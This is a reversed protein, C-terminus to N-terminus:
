WKLFKLGWGSNNEGIEGGGEFKDVLEWEKNTVGKFDGFAKKYKDLAEKKTDGYYSYSSGNKFRVTLNWEKNKEMIEGGTKFKDEKNMDARNLRNEYYVSGDASVRKGLPLADRKRDSSESRKRREGTEPNLSAKNDYEKDGKKAKIKALLKKHDAKPKPIVSFESDYGKAFTNKSNLKDDLFVIDYRHENGTWGTVAEIKLNDFGDGRMNKKRLVDGVKFKPKPEKKDAAKKVPAKRTTPKKAESGGAKHESKEESKTEKSDRGLKKTKLLELAKVKSEKLTNFSYDEEPAEELYYPETTFSTSFDKEGESDEGYIVTGKPTSYAFIDQEGDMSINHWQYFSDGYVDKGEEHYSESKKLVSDAQLQKELREIEAKAKDKAFQPFDGDVVAQLDSIKGEIEGGGEFKSTKMDKYIEMRLSPDNAIYEYLMEAEEDKVEEEAAAMSIGYHSAINKLIKSKKEKSISHLYKSNENQFEGGGEYKDELHSSANSYIYDIEASSLKNLLFKIGKKHRLNRENLSSKKSFDFDYKGNYEDAMAEHLQPLDDTAESWNKPKDPFSNIFALIAQKKSEISGGGEFFGFRKKKEMPAESFSIVEYSDVLRDGNDTAVIYSSGRKEKVIGSRPTGYDGKFSVQNGVEGGVAYKNKKDRKEIEYANISEVPVGIWRAVAFINNEKKDDIKGTKVYKNWKEWQNKTLWKSDSYVEGGTRYKNMKDMTENKEKYNGVGGGTSMKEAYFVNEINPTKMFENYENIAGKDGEDARNAIETIKLLLASNIKGLKYPEHSLENLAKQRKTKLQLEISMGNREILYHYARYGGKPNKYMDELEIIKGLKGSDIYKKVSDLEKKDSTVITTGILDTITSLRKKILKDLVSYPTKTRAYIKSNDPAVNKLDDIFSFMTSDLSKKLSILSKIGTTISPTDILESKTKDLPKTDDANAVGDKDKDGLIWDYEKENYKKDSNVVNVEISGGNKYIEFTGYDDSDDVSGGLDFKKGEKSLKRALKYDWDDKYILGSSLLEDIIERMQESNNSQIAGKVDDYYGHEEDIIDSNILEELLEKRQDLLSEGGGNDQKYM